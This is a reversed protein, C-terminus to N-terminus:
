LLGDVLERICESSALNPGSCNLPILPARLGNPPVASYNTVVSEIVDINKSTHLTLGCLM